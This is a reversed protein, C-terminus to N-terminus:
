RVSSALTVLRGLEETATDSLWALRDLETEAADLRALQPHREVLREYQEPLRRLRRRQDLVREGLTERLRVIRAVVDGSPRSVKGRSVIISDGQTLALKKEGVELQLTGSFVHVAVARRDGGNAPVSLSYFQCNRTRVVAGEAGPSIAVTVPEKSQRVQCLVAGDHVSIAINGGPSAAFTTGQPILFLSRDEDIAAATAAVYAEGDEVRGVHQGAMDRLDGFVVREAVPEVPPPPPGIPPPETRPIGYLVALCAVAAVAVAAVGRWRRRVPRRTGAVVRSAFGPGPDAWNLAQRVAQDVARADAHRQRCHECEALHAHFQQREADDLLGLDYADLRQAIWECNM